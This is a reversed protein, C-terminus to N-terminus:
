PGGTLHVSSIEQDDIESGTFPFDVWQEQGFMKTQDDYWPSGPDLSQGYTLITSADVGTETFSVAQIHSSGYNITYLGKPNEVPARSLVVNANGTEDTGGGVGIPEGVKDAVQLTGLPADFPINKQKLHAIADKMAKVVQANGQALDRPTNMPDAPKFPVTWRQAPTRSWFEQFIHSGVSDVDTRGDWAELVACAAAGKASACVRDLDDKARALEAGMVRNEHEFGRLQEASIPGAALADTVYAYVMRTRLSRECKECGILSAFGELREDPNPLWYSDNANAVWDRRTADPLNSPGFIGPRQADADTKWACGSRARTGDLVPLGAMQQTILGIPTICKRLMSEPVNPVVSHDAYLANGNRDAAITNVWPIGGGADQADLLEDTTAAKGMDLFSDITRLHEGNADRMAVLSIPTWGMLTDPSDM